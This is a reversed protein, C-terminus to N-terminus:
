LNTWCFLGPVVENYLPSRIFTNQLKWVVRIVLLFPAMLLLSAWRFRGQQTKEFVGPWNLLYAVSLTMANLAFWGFIFNGTKSRARAAEVALAIGLVTFVTVFAFRRGKTVETM